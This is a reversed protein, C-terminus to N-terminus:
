LFASRARSWVPRRWVVETHVITRGSYSTQSVHQGQLCWRDPKSRWNTNCGAVAPRHASHPVGSSGFRQRSSPKSLAQNDPQSTQVCNPFGKWDCYAVFALAGTSAVAPSGFSPSSPGISRAAVSPTSPANTSAAAPAISSSTSAATSGATASTSASTAGPSPTSTSASASPAPTSPTSISKGPSSPAGPATPGAPASTNGATPSKGSPGGPASPSGHSGPNGHAPSSSPGSPSHGCGSSQGDGGALAPVSALLATICLAQSAVARLM